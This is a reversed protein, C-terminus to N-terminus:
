RAAPLECPPRRVGTEGRRVPPPTSGARLAVVRAVAAPILAASPGFTGVIAGGIPGGAIRGLGASLVSFSIAASMEDPPVSRGVFVPSAVVNMADFCGLVFAMGLVLGISLSDNLFLVGTIAVCSAYGVYAVRMVRHAG